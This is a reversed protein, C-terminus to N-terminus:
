GRGVSRLFPVLKAVFVNRRFASNPDNHSYTTHRDVLTLRRRPIGSQSALVRAADLVRAGGLSAGFAYIRLGKPLDDGHTARVDLVGQAPNANGAAV